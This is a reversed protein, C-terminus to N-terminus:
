TSTRGSDREPGSRTWIEEFERLLKHALHRDNFSVGGHPQSANALHLVSHDDAILFGDERDRYDRHVRRFQVFSVLRRGLEVLKHDDQVLPTPDVVLARMRAYRHALVLRTVADIFELQDYIAPELGHSFLVLSREASNAIEIAAAQVQATTTLVRREREIRGEM